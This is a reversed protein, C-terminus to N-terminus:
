LFMDQIPCISIHFIHKFIINMLFITMVIYVWQSFLFSNNIKHVNNAMCEELLKM